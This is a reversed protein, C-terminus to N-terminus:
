EPLGARLARRVSEEERVERLVGHERRTLVRRGGTVPRVREIRLCSRQEVLPLGREVLLLLLGSRRLELLEEQLVHWDHREEDARAPRRVAGLVEVAEVRRLVEVAVRDEGGIRVVEEREGADARAAFGACLAPGPPAPRSM